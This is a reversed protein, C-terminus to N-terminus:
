KYGKQILAIAAAEGIGHSAGTILVVKEDM